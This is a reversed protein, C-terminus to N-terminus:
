KDLGLAIIAEDADHRYAVEVVPRKARLLAFADDGSMKWYARLLFYATSPGRNIGAACHALVVGGTRLVTEAFVWSAQFWSTPRPNGDDAVGNYLYAISSHSQLISKANPLQEYGEILSQDDYELRCDIDATIGLDVLQQVDAETTIAGGTWLQENIQSVDLM